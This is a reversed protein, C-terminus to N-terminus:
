GHEGDFEEVEVTARGPLVRPVVEALREGGCSDVRRHMQAVDIVEGFVLAVAEAAGGGEADVAAVELVVVPGRDVGAAAVQVVLAV